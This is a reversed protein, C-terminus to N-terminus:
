ESLEQNKEAYGLHIDTAVLIRFLEDKSKSALSNASNNDSMM